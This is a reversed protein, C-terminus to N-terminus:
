GPIDKQDDQSQENLDRLLLILRNKEQVTLEEYRDLETKIFEIAPDTQKQDKVFYTTISGTLMGILGIGVLMLFIAVVRGLISDPSIDGYGVTTTTVISWWLGDAYTDITPEFHTVLVTSLILMIVSLTLVRDLGNTKLIQSLLKLHKNGASVLRLLRFARVIRAAHFISDLPIAAVIDFPNKKVFEWKHDSRIFRVMVDLFLLLWVFRDLIIITANDSNIFFVSIFALSVLVIEYVATIRKYM